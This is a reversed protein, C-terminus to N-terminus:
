TLDKLEQLLLAMKHSSFIDVPNVYDAQGKPM